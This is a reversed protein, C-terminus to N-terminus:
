ADFRMYSGHDGTYLRADVEFVRKLLAPVLIEEPKGQAALSGRDLVLIHQSFQLALNLDHTVAVVLIEKGLEALLRYIALQHKLDLFTAPEDLLLARPEQALAAALMVRQREGGSLSRIDRDRFELADTLRMARDVAERDQKSAYWGKAYPARGMFAVEEASFPFELRLAQPLFAVERAFDRRPWATVERGAYQCSGRYPTRLGALIGVLTSKGAGNPGAIATFGTRPLEFSVQQLGYAFGLDKARFSM